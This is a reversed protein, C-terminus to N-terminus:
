REIAVKIPPNAILDGVWLLGGGGEGSTGWGAGHAIWGIGRCRM